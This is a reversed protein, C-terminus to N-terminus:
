EDSAPPRGNSSELRAGVAPVASVNLPGIALISILDYVIVDSSLGLPRGARQFLDSSGYALPQWLSLFPTGVLNWGVLKEGSAKGKGDQPPGYM